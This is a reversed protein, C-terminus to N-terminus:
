LPLFLWSPSSSGAESTQPPRCLQIPFGLGQRTQGSGCLFALSSGTAGQRGAQPSCHRWELHCPFGMMCEPWFM